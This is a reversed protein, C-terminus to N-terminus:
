AAEETLAVRRHPGGRGTGSGERLLHGEDLLTLTMLHIQSAEYYQGGREGVQFLHFQHM